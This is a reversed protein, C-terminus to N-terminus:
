YTRLTPLPVLRAHRSRRPVEAAELKHRLLRPDRLDGWVSRLMGDGTARVADEREKEEIVVQEVSRGGRAEGARYKLHGDFEGALRISPWRFDSRFRRGDALRYEHQLDPVEFGLQHILVRM